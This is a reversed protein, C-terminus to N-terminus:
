APASATRRRHFAENVLSSYLSFQGMIVLLVVAYVGLSAATGLLLAPLPALSGLLIVKSGAGAIGAWAGAILPRKVAGWYATAGICTKHLSWWIIPVVLLSMAASFGLAVGHTGYRIGCLIGIPVVLAILVAINVSRGVRGTAFLFWGLPNVLAFALM